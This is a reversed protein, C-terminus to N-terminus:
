EPARDKCIKGDKMIVILNKAPDELLTINAILDGDVLLLDAM